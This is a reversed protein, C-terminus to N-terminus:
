GTKIISVIFKVMKRKIHSYQHLYYTTKQTVVKEEPPTVEDLVFEHTQDAGM